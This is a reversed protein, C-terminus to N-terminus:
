RKPRLFLLVLPLLKWQRYFFLKMNYYINVCIKRENQSASSLRTSAQACKFRFFIAVTFGCSIQINQSTLTGHNGSPMPFFSLENRSCVCRSNEVDWIAVSLYFSLRHTHATSFSIKELPFIATSEVEGRKAADNPTLAHMIYVSIINIKHGTETAQSLHFDHIKWLARLVLCFIVGPLM